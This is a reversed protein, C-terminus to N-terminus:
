KGGSYKYKGVIKEHIANIGAWGDDKSKRATQLIISIDRSLNNLKGNM